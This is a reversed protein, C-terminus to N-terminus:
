FRTTRFRHTGATGGDATLYVSARLATPATHWHPRRRAAADPGVRGPRAEASVTTWVHYCEFSRAGLVRKLAPVAPGLHHADARM